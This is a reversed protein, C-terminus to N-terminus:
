SNDHRTSAAGNGLQWILWFVIAAAVGMSSRLVFDYVKIPGEGSSVVAAVLGTCFGTAISSWLNVYGFRRLVFYLPVAFCLMYLLSVYYTILVLGLFTLFDFNAQTSTVMLGLLAPVAPASSFALVTASAARM